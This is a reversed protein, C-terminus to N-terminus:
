LIQREEPNLTRLKSAEWGFEKEDHQAMEGSAEAM